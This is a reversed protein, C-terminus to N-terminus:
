RVALAAKAAASAIEHDAESSGGSVGVAGACRGDHLIPVGGALALVEAPLSRGEKAMNELVQTALGLLASTRAKRIALDVSHPKAADSRQLDLLVGSADVIAVCAFVDAATAAKWAAERAAVADLSDITPILRV